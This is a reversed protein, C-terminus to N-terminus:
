VGKRHKDEFYDLLTLGFRAAFEKMPDPSDEVFKHLDEMFQKWYDQNDETEWHKQMLLVLNNVTTHEPSGKTFIKKM